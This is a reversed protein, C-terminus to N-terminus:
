GRERVTGGGGEVDETGRGRGRGPTILINETAPVKCFLL